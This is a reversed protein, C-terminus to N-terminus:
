EDVNSTPYAIEELENARGEPDLVPEEDGVPITFVIRTGKGGPGAEVWIMGGHADVIGRAIALGFGIGAPRLLGPTMEQSASFFKDFVKERLPDPIGCGEDEVAIEIM